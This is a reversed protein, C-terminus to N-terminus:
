PRGDSTHSRSEASVAPHDTILPRAEFNSSDQIQQWLDWRALDWQLFCEVGRHRDYVYLLQYKYVEVLDMEFRPKGYRYSPVIPYNTADDRPFPVNRELVKSINSM